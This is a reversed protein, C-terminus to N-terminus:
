AKLQPEFALNVISLIMEEYEIENNLYCAKPFSGYGAILSPILNAELFNPNGFMDLRIDIRGYDKAGLTHFANLALSTIRSRLFDNGILSAREINSSKEKEGLISLGHKNPPLTLEIPMVSYRDSGKNRLIAVSFERGPLYEEILADSKQVRAIKKIKARAEEWNHVVSKHDIGIGGGHNTPKIFLPPRLRLSLNSTDLNEGRVAVAFNATKLGAGAVQRKALDKDQEFKYAEESSGTHIIGREELFSSVWVKKPDDMGSDPDSPLFKVALFVLDPNLSALFDLDNLNNVISVGVKTYHKKLLKELSDSSEQGMSGLSPRTTRVIEIHKQIKKMPSVRM